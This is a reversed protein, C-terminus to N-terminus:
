DDEIEEGLESNCSPCRANPDGGDSFIELCNACCWIREKREEVETPKSVKTSNSKEEKNNREEEVTQNAEETEKDEESEEKEKKEERDEGKPTEGGLKKLKLKEFKEEEEEDLLNESM